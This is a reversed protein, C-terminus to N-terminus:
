AAGTAARGIPVARLDELLELASAPRDERRKALARGLVGDIEAPLEHNRERASPVPANLTAFVVSSWGGGDYPMTGTLLEFVLVGVSYIDARHDVPGEATAQEPSMYGVTGVSIGVSTLNTPRVLSRALGFDVLMARGDPHLLVNSPKIDRHVIGAQHAHALAKCVDHIVTWALPPDAPGRDLRDRLTGGRVLPMSLYTIGQDSGFDYITVINPHDLQALVRAENSFRQIFSADAALDPSMVKLAVERGLPEQVARYVYAMGGRGIRETILYEGIRTGSPFNM